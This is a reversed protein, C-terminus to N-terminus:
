YKSLTIKKNKQNLWITKIMGNVKLVVFNPELKTLKMGDVISGKRYWKGSIKARENLVTQLVLSISKKVKPTKKIPKVISKKPKSETTTKNQKSYIFPDSIKVDKDMGKRLAKMDEVTHTIWDLSNANILSM